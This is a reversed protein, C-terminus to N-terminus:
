IWFFWSLFMQTSIIYIDNSFLYQLIDESTKSVWHKRRYLVRSFSCYCVLFLVGDPLESADSVSREKILKLKRSVIWQSRTEHILFVSCQHPTNFHRTQTGFCGWMEQKGSEAKGMQSIVYNCVENHLTSMCSNPIQIFDCLVLCTFSTSKFCTRIKTVHNIVQTKHNQSHWFKTSPEVQNISHDSAIHLMAIIIFWHHGYKKAILHSLNLLSRWQCKTKFM